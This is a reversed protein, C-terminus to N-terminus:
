FHQRKLFEGSYILYRNETRGKSLKIRANHEVFFFLCLIPLFLSLSVRERVWYHLSDHTYVSSIVLLRNIDPSSTSFARIHTKWVFLCTVVSLLFGKVLGWLRYSFHCGVLQIVQRSSAIQADRVATWLHPRYQQFSFDGVTMQIQAPVAVISLLEAAQHSTM